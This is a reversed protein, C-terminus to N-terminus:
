RAVKSNDSGDQTACSSVIQFQPAHAFRSLFLQRAADGRQDLTKVWRTDRSLLLLASALNQPSAADGNRQIGQSALRCIMEDLTMCSLVKQIVYEQCHSGIKEGSPQRVFPIYDLIPPTIGLKDYSEEYLDKYVTLDDGRIINTIGLHSDLAANRLFYGVSLGREPRWSQLVISERQLKAQADNLEFDGNWVVRNPPVGLREMDEIIAEGTERTGDLSRGVYPMNLDDIVLVLESTRGQADLAEGLARMVYLLWAHGVHLRGTPTPMFKFRVTPLNDITSSM